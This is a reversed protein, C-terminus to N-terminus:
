QIYKMKLTKPHSIQFIFHPNALFTMIFVCLCTIDLEFKQTDSTVLIFNGIKFMWRVYKWCPRTKDMFYGFPIRLKLDSHYMSTLLQIYQMPDISLCSSSVRRDKLMISQTTKLNRTKCFSCVKSNWQMTISTKFRQFVIM